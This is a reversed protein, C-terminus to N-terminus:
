KVEIDKKVKRFTALTLGLKDAACTEALKKGDVLYLKNAPKGCDECYKM